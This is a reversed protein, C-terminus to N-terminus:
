DLELVLYQAWRGRRVRLLVSGASESEALAEEFEEVTSILKRNVSTILDGSRIGATAATGGPEVESVFVGEGREYGHQRAIQEIWESVSMGLKELVSAVKDGPLEGATAEITV